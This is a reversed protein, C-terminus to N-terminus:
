RDTLIDLTNAPSAAAGVLNLFAAHYRKVEASEEIFMEGAVLDTFVADLDGPEPFQLINFSSSMGPHAGADFPIVQVTVNSLEAVRRLHERQARMVEPGGVQRRLVGEDLVAFVELPPDEYLAKQRRMRVDIRTQIQEESLNAASARMVAHAYDETQLLGPVTLPEFVLVSAAEAELGIFTTTAESLMKDYPDWWGRKRGDRALQMLHDRLRDDTGYIECLLAIDNVDYRKGENREMRTLKSPAWELRAAVEASKMDAQDRLTRLQQALRRRRLTPSERTPM